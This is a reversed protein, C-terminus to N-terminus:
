KTTNSELSRTSTITQNGHADVAQPHFPTTKRKSSRAKQIFHANLNAIVSTSTRASVCGSGGDTAAVTVYSALDCLVQKIPALRLHVKAIVKNVLAIECWEFFFRKSQSCGSGRAVRAIYSSLQRTQRRRQQVAAGDRRRAGHV